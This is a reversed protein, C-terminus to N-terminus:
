LLRYRNEIICLKKLNECTVYEYEFDRNGNGKTKSRCEIPETFFIADMPTNIIVIKSGKVIDNLTEDYYTYQHVKDNWCGKCIEEVFPINAVFDLTCAIRVASRPFILCITHQNHIFNLDDNLLEGNHGCYHLCGVYEYLDSALFTEMVNYKKIVVQELEDISKKNILMNKDELMKNEVSELNSM